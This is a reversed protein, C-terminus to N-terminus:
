AYTRCPKPQQCEPCVGGSPATHMSQVDNIIALNGPLSDLQDV